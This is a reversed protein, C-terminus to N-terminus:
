AEGETPTARRRRDARRGGVRRDGLGAFSNGGGLGAFARGAFKSGGGLGAFSSTPSDAAAASTPL